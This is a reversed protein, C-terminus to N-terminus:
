NCILARENFANFLEASLTLEAKAFLPVSKELRVDLEVVAQPSWAQVTPGNGRAELAAAFEGASSFRRDRDKELARIADVLAAKQAQDGHSMNIRFADAGAIMLKRIM